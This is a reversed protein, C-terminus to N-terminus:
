ENSGTSVDTEQINEKCEKQKRVCLCEGTCRQAANSNGKPDLHLWKDRLSPLKQDRPNKFHCRQRPADKPWIAGIMEFKVINLTTEEILVSM